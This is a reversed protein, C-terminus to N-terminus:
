VKQVFQEIHFRPFQVNLKLSVKACESEASWTMIAKRFASVIIAAFEGVTTSVDLKDVPLYLRALSFTYM